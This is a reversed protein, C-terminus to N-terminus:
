EGRGDYGERETELYKVVQLGNILTELSREAEEKSAGLAEVTGVNHNMYVLAAAKWLIKNM